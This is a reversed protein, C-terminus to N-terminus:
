SGLLSKLGMASIENVVDTRYKLFSEPTVSRRFNMSYVFFLFSGIVNPLAPTPDMDCM